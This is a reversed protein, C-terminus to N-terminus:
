PIRGIVRVMHSWAEVQPKVWALLEEQHCLYAGLYRSGSLFNLVLVEAEFERRAAEEQGPTDLIFLSKSPKPFYGQDPGKGMLLKLLQTSQRALGDLATDDAYFPSLLGLDAARLEKTLPVLNIRYLLM